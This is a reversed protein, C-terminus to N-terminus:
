TPPEPEIPVILRPDYVAWLKTHWGAQSGDHSTEIEVVWTGDKLRIKGRVVGVKWVGRTRFRVATWALLWRDIVDTPPPVFSATVDPLDQDPPVRTGYDFARELDITGAIARLLAPAVCTCPHEADGGMWHCTDAHVFEPEALLKAARAVLEAPSSEPM